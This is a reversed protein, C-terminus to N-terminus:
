ARFEPVFGFGVIEGREVLRLHSACIGITRQVVPEDISPVNITATGAAPDNCDILDCGRPVGIKPPHQEDCHRRIVMFGTGADDFIASTECGKAKCTWEVKGNDTGVLMYSVGTERDTLLRPIKRIAEDVTLDERAVPRLETAPDAPTSGAEDDVPEGRHHEYAARIIAEDPGTAVLKGDVVADWVGDTEHVGDPLLDPMVGLIPPNEDDVLCPLGFRHGEPTVVESAQREVAGCTCLQRQDTM